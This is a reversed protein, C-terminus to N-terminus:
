EVVYFCWPEQEKIKFIAAGDLERLALACLEDIDRSDADFAPTEFINYGTKASLERIRGARNRSPEPFADNAWAWAWQGESPLYTGIPTIRITLAPVSEGVFTLAEEVEDIKWSTFPAIRAQFLQQKRTYADLSEALLRDFAQDIADHHDAHRHM